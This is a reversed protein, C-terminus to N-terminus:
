AKVTRAKPRRLLWRWRSILLACFIISCGTLQVGSMREGLWVMGMLATWVPELTMILAAHSVPVMGQAKVQLFFRLSTAILISAMLWGIIEGSVAAPWRESLTSILLALSGVVTLQMATLAMVPIRAAFRTNLNFHVALGCATAFFYLDSSM